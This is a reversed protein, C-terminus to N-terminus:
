EASRLDPRTSEVESHSWTTQTQNTGSLIFNKCNRRHYNVQCFNRKKKRGSEMTSQQTFAGNKGQSSRETKLNNDLATFRSIHTDRLHKRWKRLYMGTVEGSHEMMAKRASNKGTAHFCETQQAAESAKDRTRPWRRGWLRLPKQKHKIQKEKNVLSISSRNM